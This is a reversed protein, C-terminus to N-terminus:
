RRQYHIQWTLQWTKGGDTSSEWNWTFRSKQIDFFVMRQVVEKDGNKRPATQFLRKDGDVLASLVIFGGQNDVWTQRWTKTATHYVSLSRGKLPPQGNQGAAAVFNEEIVKGDLIKTITNRGRGNAWTIDWDGVWFDFLDLPQPTAQKVFRPM